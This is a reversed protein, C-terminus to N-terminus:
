VSGSLSYGALAGVIGWGLSRSRSFTGLAIVLAFLLLPGGPGVLADGLSRGLM